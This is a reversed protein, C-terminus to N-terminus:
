RQRMVSEKGVDLIKKIVRCSPTDINCTPCAKYGQGSWGSLISRAPFDNITWLLTAHMRFVDNTLTDRTQVGEAWLMKLEDVLPRLFVDIDKGPSKEGPILLTLMFSSEKMCLWPPTNYTTLVVPWMSYTQNAFPNFGDAALGLRVNRPEKAFDPYRKDFDQWAKGDVPHRMMGDTSRGTNHWIMDKATFRSCYRRQLRPALPFYRLVKQPVKKGKTSKDVWRSENCVPCNEMSANEKWFLACDYKCAHISKYGLGIKRLKKKAEYYKAPIKNPKPLSNRLHELLQDFSSNTMNNMVKLHMLKALFSLSSMWSCGPYLETTLEKFLEDFEPDLTNEEDKDEELNEENVNQAAMVDALVDFLENNITPALMDSEWLAEIESANAYEEGHHVLTMYSPLFGRDHIHAYIPPLEQLLRKSNACRICPCYAKGENNVHNSSIEMFSDLGNLFESSRRNRLTIWSKDSAM